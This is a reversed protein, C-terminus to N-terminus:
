IVVNDDVLMVGGVEAQVVRLTALVTADADVDHVRGSGDAQILVPGTAEEHADTEAVYLYSIPQKGDPSFVVMTNYGFQDPITDTLGREASEREVIGDLFYSRMWARGNEPETFLAPFM